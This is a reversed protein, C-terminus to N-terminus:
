ESDSGGPFGLFARGMKFTAIHVHGDWVGQSDRGRMRGEPLWLSMRLTQQTQKQKTLLNM